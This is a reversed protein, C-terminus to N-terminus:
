LGLACNIVKQVDVANITNDCNVDCDYGTLLALAANIVLQVDVANVAADGNIDERPAAALTRLAFDLNLTESPEWGQCSWRGCQVRRRRSRLAVRWCCRQPCM